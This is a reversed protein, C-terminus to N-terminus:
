WSNRSPLGRSAQNPPLLASMPPLLSPPFSLSLVAPLSPPLVSLLQVSPLHVAPLGRGAAVARSQAWAM